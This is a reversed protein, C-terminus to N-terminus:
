LLIRQSTPEKKNQALLDSGNISLPSGQLLSMSASSM